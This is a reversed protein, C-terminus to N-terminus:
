ISSVYILVASAIYDHAGQTFIPTRNVGAPRVDETTRVAAQQVSENRGIRSVIATKADRNGACSIDVVVAFGIHHGRGENFRPCWM